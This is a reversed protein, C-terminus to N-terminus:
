QVPSTRRAERRGYLLVYASPVGVLTILTTLSLGGIMVIALPPWLLSPSLAVPLFGAVDTVATVLVHNFRHGSVTSVMQRLPVGSGRQAEYGDVLVVGDNVAIGAVMILGMIAMFNLPWGTLWLGLM